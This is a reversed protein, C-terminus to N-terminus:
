AKAKVTGWSRQRALAPDDATDDLAEALRQLADRGRMLVLRRTGFASEVQGSTCERHVWAGQVAEGPPFALWLQDLRCREGCITCALRVAFVEGRNLVQVMVSGKRLHEGRAIRRHSRGSAM